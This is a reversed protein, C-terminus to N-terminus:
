TPIEDAFALKRGEWYVGTRSVLFNIGSFDVNFVPDGTGGGAAGKTVYMRVSGDQSGVYFGWDKLTMTAENTNITALAGASVIGNSGYTMTNYMGDIVIRGNSFTIRDTKSKASTAKNNATNATSYASDATDQAASAESRATNATSQATTIRTSLGDIDGSLEGVADNIEQEVGSFDLVMEGTDLDWYTGGTSSSIRGAKILDADIVGSAIYTGNIYLKGGQLYIGQTQGGNTLRDFVEQQDLSWDLLDTYDKAEALADSGVQDAYGNAEDVAGDAYDQATKGGIETGASLSFVGSDLDWYNNGKSDSLIGATILGAELTGTLILDATFGEGTGFTRWNWSGDGKLSDAIRLGGGALQIASAPLRTPAGTEPDLPVSGIIIGKDMSQYVYSAGEDFRKNLGDMVQQIYAAPTTAAVDWATSRDKLGQMDAYQGALVGDLGEVINGVAIDTIRGGDAMDRVLRTVRGRVRVEPEFATDVLVVDDGLAVGSFDYGYDAMVAVSAEYSVKPSSAEELAAQTLELLEAPDTCDSNEYKGFVHALGGSGDPRGWLQLADLDEVYAKGGNIDAFDIGRGYGDGVEEGKGYGYMATVVDDASFTRTVETMDRSYTFRRGNDAGRRTLNVKRATVACGEVEITTSLEGGWLEMLSQLAERASVRYFNTSKAGQVTVTGVDWRSTQLIGALAVAASEERPKRDEVFDGYLESISNECTARYVPAGSGHSQAVESAIHEHWLGQGDVWVIRDGKAVPDGCEVTLTDEGGLEETWEATIIDALTRKQAGWRDMLIMRM